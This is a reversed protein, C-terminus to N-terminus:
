KFHPGHAGHLIEKRNSSRLRAELFQIFMSAAPELSGRARHVISLVQRGTSGRLSLFRLTGERVEQEVDADNLFTIHPSNSALRKMMETSNTEVMANLEANAPVLDDVIDRLTTLSHQAVVLPYSLCESLRVSGRRALPHNPAVVAGLQHTFESARRLRPDPPLDYGVGLHVQGTGVAAMLEPGHMMTVDLRINPHLERFAVVVESVLGGALTGQTAISVSGRNLGKLAHIQTLTRDHGRLTDRIHAILLEGSTTLRLGRPLREFIPAGIEEELEIIHRNIASAAVNLTAAAKRISGLRAVEDLYRLLRGHLM